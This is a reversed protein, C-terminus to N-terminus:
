AQRRGSRAHAVADRDRCGQNGALEAQADSRMAEGALPLEHVAIEDRQADADSGKVLKEYDRGCKEGDELPM